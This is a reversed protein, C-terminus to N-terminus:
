NISTKHWNLAKNFPVFSFFTLSGVLQLTQRTPSDLLPPSRHQEATKGCNHIDDYM